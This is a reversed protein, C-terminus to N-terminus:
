FPYGIALHLANGDRFRGINYFRRRGDATPSHLGIGWDVRVVLFTLDYRLGIGTGVAIQRLNHGSLLGEARQSDHHMLWVNGADLFVAGHLNGLLRVRLEANAELKFDGTQSIYADRRVPDIFGGPGISRAAFGRVSNAGGVYFLESYPAAISNGYTFITGCFARTAISFRNNLNWTKHVEATLKLFQAYPSGMISKDREIWSYGCLSYIGSTLHGSEKILFQMWLPARTSNTTHTYLYSIAPIFQNRMSVRLVPNRQLIEEFAATSSLTRDYQLDLVSLEHFRMPHKHWNYVIDAGFKLAYFYGSRNKWDATLALKTSAPFRQRSRSMLLFRPFSLSLESGLEFSNLSAGRNRGLHWEYSGFIKWAIREGARFANKKALEYSVGPGFQQNSKLTVNTEFSSEYPKDLTATIFVDLTDCDDDPTSPLYDMSINSLIGMSSLKELTNVQDSLSYLRRPRHTISYMWLRPRVPAKQGHFAYEVYRRSIVSDIRNSANDHLTIHIKGISWPRLAEPTTSVPNVRLSVFQPHRVTDAEFGVNAAAFYYYGNDRLLTEIRKRENVLNAASFAAGKKILRERRTSRLLSDIHPTFSNYRLSDILYLPGTQIHYAIKAKHPNKQPVVEYTTRAKFFGFNHLQNTALKVRTQPAVTSILIPAEGFQRFMWKGFRRQADHYRNYIRLGVQMPNVLKSSGFLAGNPAYALVADVEQQVAAYQEERAKQARAEARVAGRGTFGVLGSDPRAAAPASGEGQGYILASVTEVADGVARVVGQQSERVAAKARKQDSRSRKGSATLAGNDNYTIEKIGTYLVDGEELVSTTSCAALLLLTSLIYLLKRM